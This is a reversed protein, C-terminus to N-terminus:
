FDGFPHPQRIHVHFCIVIYEMYDLLVGRSNRPSEDLDDGDWPGEDLDFFMLGMLTSEIFCSESPTAPGNLDFDNPFDHLALPNITHQPAGTFATNLTNVLENAFSPGDEDMPSHRDEDMPPNRDEDVPPNRDADMPCNRGEDIPSVVGLDAQEEFNAASPNLSTSPPHHFTGLSTPHAIDSPPPLLLRQQQANSASSNPLFLTMVGTTDIHHGLLSLITDTPAQSPGIFNPPSISQRFPVTPIYPM